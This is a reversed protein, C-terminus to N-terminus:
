KSKAELARLAAAVQPALTSEPFWVGNRMVGAIRMTQHIDRLPNGDLLVLDARKGVTVTGSKNLTGFYAAVNRTSTTLAQYPTLGAAVLAALERHLSFGPVLYPVVMNTSADTGSLLGAGAAQLADVLHQFADLTGGAGNVVREGVSHNAQIENWQKLQQPSAYRVEPWQALTDVHTDPAAINDPTLTPCNWVGAQRTQAALANIRSLDLDRRMVALFASDTLQTGDIKLERAKAMTSSDGRMLAPLYGTLHEISTYGIKLARQVPLADPVHGVVPLGVRHAAVVLSEASVADEDHIKLHDYGAAHYAAVDAGIQDLPTHPGGGFLGILGGTGDGNPSWVSSTYIRPSVLTGAAARARLRLLFSGDLIHFMGGPSLYDMNRITTVGNALWLFLAHEASSSDGVGVHTHMDALGPILYKGRGDVRRTHAPIQVHGVPGIAAIRGEQVLVTQDPIVWERDMPVVTVGVFATSTVPSARISTPTSAQFSARTADLQVRHNTQGYLVRASVICLAGTTILIALTSRYDAQARHM